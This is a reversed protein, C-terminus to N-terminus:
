RMKQMYSMLLILDVFLITMKQRGKEGRGKGIRGKEM